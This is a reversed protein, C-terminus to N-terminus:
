VYTEIFYRAASANKGVCYLCELFTATRQRRLFGEVFGLSQLFELPTGRNKETILLGANLPHQKSSIQYVHDTPESTIVIWLHEEIAHHSALAPDSYLLRAKRRCAPKQPAADQPDTGSRCRRSHRIKTRSLKAYPYSKSKYWGDGDVVCM